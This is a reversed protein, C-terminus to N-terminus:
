KSWDVKKRDRYAYDEDIARKLKALADKNQEATVDPAAPAAGASRTKFRVTYWEAAEGKKSAFGKFTDSNLHFLYDYDPQLKVPIVFTKADVFKPEGDFPLATPGGGLVSRGDPDMPQDYEIRVEKLSPDVDVEGNDPSTIVVKPPAATVNAVMSLTLVSAFVTQLHRLM